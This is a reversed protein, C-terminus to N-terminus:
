HLDLKLVLLCYLCIARQAAEPRDMMESEVDDATVADFAYYVLIGDISWSPYGGVFRILEVELMEDRERERM